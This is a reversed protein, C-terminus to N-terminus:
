FAPDFYRVQGYPTVGLNGSHLDDRRTIYKWVMEELLKDLWGPILNNNATMALEFEQLTKPDIRTKLDQVYLQIDQKIQGVKAPNDVDEDKGWLKYLISKPNYIDKDFIARVPTFFGGLFDRDLFSRLPRMKEMIYYYIKQHDVENFMGVDYIMAETAAATPNHWLRHMAKVAAHYAGSSFFVKLVRNKGISYARGDAQGGLLVPQTQFQSSISNLIDKNAAIFKRAFDQSEKIGMFMKDMFLPLLFSFQGIDKPYREPEIDQDEQNSRYVRLSPIDGNGVLVGVPQWNAKRSATLNQTTIVYIFKLKDPLMFQYSFPTMEGPIHGKIHRLFTENAHVWTVIESAIPNFNKLFEQLKPDLFMERLKNYEDSLAANKRRAINSRVGSIDVLISLAAMRNLFRHSLLDTVSNALIIDGITTEIFKSSNFANISVDINPNEAGSITGNVFMDQISKFTNQDIKGCIISISNGWYAIALAGEDMLQKYPKNLVQEAVVEHITNIVPVPPQDKLIWYGRPAAFKEHM